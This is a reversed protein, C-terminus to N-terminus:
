LLKNLANIYAIISAEIIDTSLGRGMVIEDGCKIRVFAEGLADKGEGVSQISYDDLSHPPTKIIKDVARFAADVPVDGIAVEEFM